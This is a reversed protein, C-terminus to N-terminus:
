ECYKRNDQIFEIVLEKDFSNDLIDEIMGSLVKRCKTGVKLSDFIKTLFDKYSMNTEEKLKIITNKIQKKEETSPETKICNETNIIELGSRIMQLDDNDKLLLYSQIFSRTLMTYLTNRFNPNSKISNAVCIVFPFELGKVNNKNSVFLTNNIKEKSEYGKNVTWSFKEMISFELMDALKYIYKGGDLLIIAIDDPEVTPNEKKIKDILALIDETFTNEVVELNISTLDELDLDEFRRVSERSLCIDNGEKNVLYGSGEWEDDTLWNLKEEEFLGMGLAQAFMLTRPDTRYCRNLVFDANVIRKEIENDFINQFIDGAVYIKYQTVKECLDFFSQPFDQSEDIFIYDLAFKFNEPPIQELAKLAELCVIDFSTSFSYRMFSIDYFNCIYGYVGANKNSGSGWANIIWLNENWNIQKEVKMFNFFDPVRKRINEALIKNHCTFFVKYDHSSTFIEKLKHLLLETKGTGSLGQINTRKQPLTKYIFRTQEGDFLVIKSKVKDLLTEPETVGIKGVDNISGLLLSILLECKRKEDKDELINDNLLKNVDTIQSLLYQTTLQKQWKKPRGIFDKYEFKDSISGLDEIFDEIFDEFAIVNNLLDIFIIKHNPSLLVLASNEYDYKYKKEGLPKNILYIQENTEDIYKEINNIFTENIDTKEIHAYFLANLYIGKQTYSM